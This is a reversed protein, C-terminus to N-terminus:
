ENNRQHIPEKFNALAEMLEDIEGTGTAINRLEGFQPLMPSGPPSVEEERQISSVTGYKEFNVSSTIIVKNTEPIWMELISEGIMGVLHGGVARPAFKKGKIRKTLPILVYGTHGFAQTNAVNLVPNPYHLESHWVEHPTIDGEIGNTFSLNLM